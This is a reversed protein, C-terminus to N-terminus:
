YKMHFYTLALVYLKRPTHPLRAAKQGGTIESCKFISASHVDIFINTGLFSHNIFAQELCLLASEQTCFNM